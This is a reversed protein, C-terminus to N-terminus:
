AWVLSVIFLGILAGAASALAFPRVSVWIAMALEIRGEM